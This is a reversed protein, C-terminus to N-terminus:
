PSEAQAREREANRRDIWKGIWRKKRFYILMGITILVCTLMTIPYGYYARLEPMNWPSTDPDFNMGYIGVIFTLPMFLTAIITLVKMVENTRQNVMSLYMDRIDATVERYIEILDILQVTHDYCDRLHVRTEDGILDTTERILSNFMERHPWVARRLMLLDSKIDHIMPVTGDDSVALVHEELADIRDSLQELVPFYADITADLLVYTLYDPGHGRLVGRSRRIRERVSDLCDGPRDQFTVVFRKGLFTSLQESDLRGDSGPMRAVIFLHDGYEEVKARQHVNVVDELALPHLRFLRGLSQIVETDGLGDVNVWVVPWENLLPAITQAHNATIEREFMKDQSYAMVYVHPAHAKPDAVLTGPAAGVQSRRHLQLRRKKRRPKSSM